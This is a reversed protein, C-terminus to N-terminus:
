LSEKLKKLEENVKSTYENIIITSEEHCCLKEKLNEIENHLEQNIDCLGKYSKRSKAIEEDKIRLMTMFENRNFEIQKHKVKLEKNLEEIQHIMVIREGEKSGILVAEKPTDKLDEFSPFNHTHIQPKVSSNDNIAVDVPTVEGTKLNLEPLNKEEFANYGENTSRYSCWIYLPLRRSMNALEEYMEKSNISVKYNPNVASTQNKIVERAEDCILKVPRINNNKYYRYSDVCCVHGKKNEALGIYDAKTWEQSMMTDGHYVEVEQGNEFEQM